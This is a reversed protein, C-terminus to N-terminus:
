TNSENFKLASIATEIFKSAEYRAKKGTELAVCGKITTLKNDIYLVPLYQFGNKDENLQQLCSAKIRKRYNKM